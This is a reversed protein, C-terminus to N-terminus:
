FCSRSPTKLSYIIVDAQRIRVDRSASWCLGTTGLQWPFSENPTRRVETSESKIPMARALCHSGILSSRSAFDVHAPLLLQSFATQGITTPEVKCYKWSHQTGVHTDALSPEDYQPGHVLWGCHHNHPPLHAPSPPWSMLSGTRGWGAVIATISPSIRLPHAWSM